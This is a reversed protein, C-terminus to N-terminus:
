STEIIKRVQVMTALNEASSLLMTVPGVLKVSLEGFEMLVYKLEVRKSLQVM